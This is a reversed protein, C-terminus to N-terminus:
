FQMPPLIQPLSQRTKNRSDTQLVFFDKLLKLFSRDM